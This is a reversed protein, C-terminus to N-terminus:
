AVAALQARGERDAMENLSLTESAVELIEWTGEPAKLHLPNYFPSLTKLYRPLAYLAMGGYSRIKRVFSPFGGKIRGAAIDQQLMYHSLSLGFATLHRGAVFIGRLREWYSGYLTEVANFAVCRHEFEEALHWRWLSTTLLDVNGTKIQKNAQNLFYGAMIPGSTEFGEVYHMCYRLGKAEFRRYDDKLKEMFREIEPYYGTEKVMNNFRRHTTYHNVEQDCFLECDRKKEVEHDPLMKVAKKMTTVLFSELLPLGLSLANWYQALEPDNKLWDIKAKSFDVQVQRVEMTAREYSM